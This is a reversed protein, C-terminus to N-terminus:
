LVEQCLFKESIDLFRLELIKKHGCLIKIRIACRLSHAARFANLNEAYIWTARCLGNVTDTSTSGIQVAPFEKWYLKYTVDSVASIPRDTFINWQRHKLFNQGPSMSEAQKIPQLTIFSFCSHLM